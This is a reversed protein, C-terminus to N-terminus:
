LFTADFPMHATSSSGGMDFHTSPQSQAFLPLPPDSPPSGSPPADQREEDGEEVDEFEDEDQAEEEERELPLVREKLVVQGYNWNKKNAITTAM